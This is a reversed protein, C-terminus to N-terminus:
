RPGEGSYDRALVLRYHHVVHGHSTVSFADLAEVRDFVETVLETEDIHADVLVLADDGPAIRDAIWFDFQDNRLGMKAVDDRGRAFALLSATRYDTTMVVDPRHRAEAQGVAVAVQSLGYGIDVDRQAEGRAAHLPYAGYAVTMMVGVTLGFGVHAAFEIRSRLFFVVVPLAVAYAPMLWYPLITNSVTLAVFLGFTVICVLRATSQYAGLAGKLSPGCMRAILLLLPPGVFITTVVLLSVLRDTPNQGEASQGIRDVLNYRLSPFDHQWNWILVPAQMALAVAGGAWLQWARLLSRGLPTGFVWLLVALGVLAGSYKSLGAFGIAVCAAFYLPWRRQGESLAAHFLAMFHAAAIVALILLCDNIGVSQFRLLVPSASWIIVGAAFADFARGEPALRRSWFWLFWLTGALTIVAIARLGALSWGFLAAMAGQVWGILPPHDYYSLSLNQGWLWYYAEDPMPPVLVLHALRMAVFPVLIAVLWGRSPLVDDLRATWAGAPRAAGAEIVADTVTATDARGGSSTSTSTTPM